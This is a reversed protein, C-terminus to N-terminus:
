GDRKKKKEDEPKQGPWVGTLYEFTRAAARDAVAGVSAMTAAELAAAGVIKGLHANPTTPDPPDAKDVKTWLAKFIGRALRAGIMSAVLAFPKYLIKV